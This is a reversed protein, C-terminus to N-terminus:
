KTKQKNTKNQKTKKSAPNRQIARTTRSSVRYVLKAKFDSIWRGRGGWTSPNFAHAQGWKDIRSALAFAILITNLFNEGTGMYKLSKGV